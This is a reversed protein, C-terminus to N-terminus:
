GRPADFSAGPALVVDLSRAAWAPLAEVLRVDDSLEWAILEGADQPLDNDRLDEILDHVQDQTLNAWQQAGPGLARQADVLCGTKLNVVWRTQEERTGEFIHCWHESVLYRGSCHTAGDPSFSADLSLHAAVHAPLLPKPNSM